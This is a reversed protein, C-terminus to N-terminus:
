PRLLADRLEGAEGELLQLEGPLDSVRDVSAGLTLWGVVTYVRGHEPDAGVIAVTILRPGQGPPTVVGAILNVEAAVILQWDDLLLVEGKRGAEFARAARELERREWSPLDEVYNRASM